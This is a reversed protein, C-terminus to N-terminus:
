KSAVVLSASVAAATAPSRYQNLTVPLSPSGKRLDSEFVACWNASHEPRPMQSRAVPVHEHM